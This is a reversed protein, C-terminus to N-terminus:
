RIGVQEVTISKEGIAEEVTMKNFKQLYEARQVESMEFWQDPPVTLHDAVDAHECEASLGCIAMQLERQQHKDM